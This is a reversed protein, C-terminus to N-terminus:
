VGGKIMALKKAVTKDWSHVSTEAKFGGIVSLDIVETLVVDDVKAARAVEAKIRGRVKPSLPKATTVTANALLGRRELLDSIDAMLLDVDHKKGSADLYAALKKAIKVPPHGALLQRVAYSAVARRSVTIM